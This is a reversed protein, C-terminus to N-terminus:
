STMNEAYYEASIGYFSVEPYNQITEQVETPYAYSSLIIVEAGEKVLRHIAEACEGTGEPINEEVLLKAGLEKCAYKVGQYHMGNWGADEMGGTLILGVKTKDTKPGDVTAILVMIIVLVVAAFLLLLKQRGKNNKMM